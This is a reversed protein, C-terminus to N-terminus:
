SREKYKEFNPAELKIRVERMEMIFKFVMFSAVENAVMQIIVVAIYADSARVLQEEDGLSIRIIVNALRVSFSITFACLFLIQQPEVSHRIRHLVIIELSVFLVLLVSNLVLISAQFYDSERLSPDAFLTQYHVSAM